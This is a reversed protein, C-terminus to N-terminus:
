HTTNQIYKNTIYIFRSKIRKKQWFGYNGWQGIELVDFGSTKFLMALGM